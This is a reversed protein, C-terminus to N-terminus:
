KVSDILKEAIDYCARPSKDLASETPYPTHPTTHPTPHSETIGQRGCERESIM